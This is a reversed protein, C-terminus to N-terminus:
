IFILNQFKMEESSNDKGFNEQKIKLIDELSFLKPPTKMAKQSEGKVENLRRKKNTEFMRDLIKDENPDAKELPFGKPNYIRKNLENKM